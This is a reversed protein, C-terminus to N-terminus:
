SLSTIREPCQKTVIITEEFVASLQGDKMTITWGDSRTQTAWDGMAYMVEIALTQGEKLTPSNSKAGSTYCPISPEMHLQRGVGHGTLTRVVSFGAAEVNKQICHSIDWVQNGVTAVSIAKDLTSKGIQLFDEKDSTTEGVVFSTSTDTHFGKYLLGVDITVLDGSKLTGKPIGHVIDANTNICTSWHYGPVTKFSPKGGTELLLKEAIQDIAELTIGPKAMKVLQQKVQALLLGGERM